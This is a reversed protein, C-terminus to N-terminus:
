LHLLSGAAARTLTRVPPLHISQRYRNLASLTRQGAIGDIPGPSFGKGKLETQITRVDAPGLKDAELRNLVAATNVPPPAFTGPQASPEAAESAEVLSMDALSVKPLAFDTGAIVYCLPAGLVLGVALLGAIRERNEELAEHRRRLQERALVRFSLDSFGTELMHHPRWCRVSLAFMAQPAINGALEIRYRIKLAASKDFAFAPPDGVRRLEGLVDM